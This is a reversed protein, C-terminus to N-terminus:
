NSTTCQVYTTLQDTWWNRCNLYESVSRIEVKTEPSTLRYWQFLGLIENRSNATCLPHLFKADLAFYKKVTAELEAADRTTCLTRIVSPIDRKPDQM